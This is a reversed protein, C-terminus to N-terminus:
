RRQVRVRVDEAPRLTTGWNFAPDPDSLLELDVAQAVAPLVTKLEMTAFRMGICHRPGGGFPFYAYDPIRDELGDAWRDPRFQFPDDYWRDDTHVHFQPLSLKTGEPVRHGGIDVDERAERFIIFAPPYLRLTEDVVRDTYALDPLDTLGPRGGGLVAEHEADLRERVDDRKALELFAYTLALSTTEHGAFLFTTMQDRVEVDSMGAGDDDGATLLLSLLDDHDDEAGRREEILDEVFSRFTELRRQYRRNGPTPVWMPLFTSLNQVDGRDALTEAFAEVVGAREELDVDFLSHALIRLTLTSFARNLAIEEGDDWGAAMEEAYRAMADAYGQIRDMTFAGQIATRQRRWQEGETLLLGENAFEGGFDEFDYKGFRENDTVLVREIHDPHLLAVFELRPISYGVVDGYESMEQYFGRPDRALSLANGLVPYGDPGPPTPLDAVAAGETAQEEDGTATSAADSM